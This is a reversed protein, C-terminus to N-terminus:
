KSQLPVFRCISEPQVPCTKDTLTPDNNLVLILLNTLISLPRLDTISNNYLTLSILNTLTSLPRLDTISNNHLSLSILNTLKSLPSLDTISNNHLYLSNLNGLTSLPRLDTISNNNLSLSILNTLTSLPKLDAIQKDNLSLNTRTSLLSSAQNCDTTEAVRLLVDVTRLTEVSLNNRDLCWDAFTKPTTTEQFSAASAPFCAVFLFVFLIKLPRVGLLTLAKIINLQPHKKIDM